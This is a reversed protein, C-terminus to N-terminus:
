LKLADRMDGPGSRSSTQGPLSLLLKKAPPGDTRCSLHLWPRPGTHLDMEHFPMSRHIHRIMEPLLGKEAPRIDAAEGRCHRSHRSLSVFWNLEPSRFGSLVLIPGFKQRLPELFERALHIIRKQSSPTPTNDLGCTRATDSALMEAWTFHPAGPIPSNLDAPLSVAIKRVRGPAFLKEGRFVRCLANTRM